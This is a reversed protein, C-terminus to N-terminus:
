AGATIQLQLAQFINQSQKRKTSIFGRITCFTKAGEMGRFGGSIKQKVKMMRIDQEAQNNTFPVGPNTLFRLVADKFNKLRLLLNHGIRKKRGGMSTQKEHFALGRAVIEDYIRFVRELPPDTLRNLLRLFRSMQFAWPEKEIEELSKLERLHHANCLAHEMGEM